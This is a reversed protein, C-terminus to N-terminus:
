IPSAPLEPRLEMKGGISLYGGGIGLGWEWGSMDIRANVPSGIVFDSAFSYSGLLLNVGIISWGIGINDFDTFEYKKETRFRYRNGLVFSFIGTTKWSWGFIFGAGNVEAALVGAIENGISDYRFLTVNADIRGINLPIPDPTSLISATDIRIAWYESSGLSTLNNSGKSLKGFGPVMTTTLINSAIYNVSALEIMTMHGGPDTWMVPNANAYLYRNLSVPNQSDRCGMGGSCNDQSVFRGVRPEYYRARM